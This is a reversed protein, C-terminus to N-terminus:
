WTSGGRVASRQDEPPLVFPATIWRRGPLYNDEYAGPSLNCGWDIGITGGYLPHKNKIVM